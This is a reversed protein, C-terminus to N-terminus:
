RLAVVVVDVRVRKMIPRHHFLDSLHTTLDLFFDAASQKMFCGTAVIASHRREVLKDVLIPLKAISSGNLGPFAVFQRRCNGMLENVFLLVLDNLKKGSAVNLVLGFVFDLDDIM